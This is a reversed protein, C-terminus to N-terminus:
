KAPPPPVIPSPARLSDAKQQVTGAKAQAQQERALALALEADLKARDLAFAALEDEDNAVYKKATDLQDNAMKLHLAARPISPAGVENAARIAAEADALRTAPVESHGCGVALLLVPVALFLRM